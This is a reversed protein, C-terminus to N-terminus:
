RCVMMADIEANTGAPTAHSAREWQSANAEDRLFRYRLADRVMDDMVQNALAVAEAYPLPRPETTESMGEKGAGEATNTAATVQM